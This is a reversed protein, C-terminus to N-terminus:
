IDMAGGLEDSNVFSDENINGNFREEAMPRAVNKVLYEGLGELSNTGKDYLSKIKNNNSPVNEYSLAQM